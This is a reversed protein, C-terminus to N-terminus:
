DRRFPNKIEVTMVEIILDAEMDDRMIDAVTNNPRTIFVDISRRNDTDSIVKMGDFWVANEMTKANSLRTQAQRAYYSVSKKPTNTEEIYLYHIELLSPKPITLGAPADKPWLVHYAAIVKAGTNLVFDSPLEPTDAQAELGWSEEAKKKELAAAQFWKRWASVLKTSVNMWSQEAMAKKVAPRITEAVGGAAPNGRAPPSPAAYQTGGRDKRPLMKVLVLFGPDTMVRDPFGAAELVGSGDLWRKKLLKAVVARMGDQPITSALTIMEPEKELSFLEELSPTLQSCFDASWLRDAIQLALADEPNQLHDNSAPETPSAGPLPSGSEPPIIGGGQTGSSGGSPRLGGSPPGFDSNPRGLGSPSRFGGGGSGTDPIKLLRHLAYGSYAALQQAMTAQIEKSIDKRHYLVIQAGCNLPDAAILLDRLPNNEVIRVARDPMWEALKARLEISTSTKVLEFAKTQLDKASYPGERDAPRVKEPSTVAQLLLADNEACPHAALAKLSTEVATKDDDTKLNGTIIQELTKRASASNNEGLANVIAEVLQTYEGPNPPPVNTPVQGPMSPSGAPGMGPRGLPQGPRPGRGGPVPMPGRQGPPTSGPPTSDPPTVPPTAGPEQSDSTPPPEVPLPTLLEALGQAAPESGRTKESLYVIALLLKPNKEKRARFYDDKKWTSVDESLPPPEKNTEAQKQDTKEQPPAQAQMPNAPANEATPQAPPANEPVAQAPPPSPTQPETQVAVVPAAPTSNGGFWGLFFGLVLVVVLLLGGAILGVILSSNKKGGALKKTFGTSGATKEETMSLDEWEDEKKPSSKARSPQPANNRSRLDDNPSKGDAAM